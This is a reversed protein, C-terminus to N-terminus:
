SLVSPARPPVARVIYGTNFDVPVTIDVPVASLTLPILDTNEWLLRKKLSETVIIPIRTFDMDAHQYTEKDRGPLVLDIHSIICGSEDTDHTHRNEDAGCFRSLDHGSINGGCGSGCDQEQHETECYNGESSGALCHMPNACAATSDEHHHHPLLIVFQVMVCLVM